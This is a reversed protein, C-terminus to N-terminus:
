AEKKGSAGPLQQFHAVLSGWQVEGEGCADRLGGGLTLDNQNVSLKQRIDQQFFNMQYYDGINQEHFKRIGSFVFKIFSFYPFYHFEGLSFLVPACLLTIEVWNAPNM